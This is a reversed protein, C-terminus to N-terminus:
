FKLTFSLIYILGMRAIHLSTSYKTELGSMRLVLQFEGLLRWDILKAIPLLQLSKEEAEQPAEGNLWGQRRLKQILCQAVLEKRGMCVTSSYSGVIYSHPTTANIASRDCLSNQIASIESQDKVQLEEVRNYSYWPQSYNESICICVFSLMLM